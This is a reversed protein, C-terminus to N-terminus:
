FINVSFRFFRGPTASTRPTKPTGPVEVDKVDYNESLTRSLVSKGNCNEGNSTMENGDELDLTLKKTVPM